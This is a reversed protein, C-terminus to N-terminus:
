YYLFIVEFNQIMVQGFADKLRMMEWNMFYVTDFNDAFYKMIENSNKTPLYILVCEAFVLTPARNKKL